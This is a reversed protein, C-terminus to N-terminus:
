VSNRQETAHKILRNVYDPILTNMINFFYEREPLRGKPLKDPFFKMFEPSVQMESWLHKVALEDYMPVNIFSVDKLKMLCKEEGLVQKLFDKNIM